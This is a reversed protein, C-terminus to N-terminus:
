QCFSCVGTLFKKTVINQREIYGKTDRSDPNELWRYPDAVKVGFYNDVIDDDRKADPYKIMVGETTM